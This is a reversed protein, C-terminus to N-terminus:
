PQQLVSREGRLQAVAQAAAWGILADLHPANAAPDAARTFVGVAYRGGDPYEVVGVENRVLPLTGTKGSVKIEDGPFGSTLRHPWIQHGMWDRVLKCAAPPAAEDRWIAALLRTIEEPTTRCTEAPTLARLGLLREVSVEALDREDDGYDIGLDEGITALLEACNQPVATASLGLDKLLAAVQDKGVRELVLDTAVNDSIVMMLLALDRYSILAHDRHAALGFPSAVLGNDVKVRETLDVEGTVAQRALELSVPVKFVSATVVPTTEDIGITEGSDLDRAHLWLEAGLERARDRIEAPTRAGATRFVYRAPSPVVRLQDIALRAVTGICADLEPRRYAHDTSRLFVAVAYRSGDGDEVVGVENRWYPLTGTKASVKTGSETFGTRLRHPWAQLGLIRRMEACAEPNATEGWWIASLLQVIERPTGVQLSREPDVARATHLQELNPADEAVTRYIDDCSGDVRTATLGLERLRVNIADTGLLRVLVDTAANDSVSMMWYALDRLSLEIPDAMVSLGTPGASRGEVPLDIRTAPDLRGDAFQCFLEVLVPIKFVSALVVPEDEGYGFEAGRDLDVAYVWGQAGVAKLVADISLM